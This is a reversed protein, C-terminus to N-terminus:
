VESVTLDQALKKFFVEHLFHLLCKQCVAFVNKWRGKTLLAKSICAILISM